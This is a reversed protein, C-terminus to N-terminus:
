INPKASDLAHIVLIPISIDSATKNTYVPVFLDEFFTRKYALMSLVDIEQDEVFQLLVQKVEDSEIVFFDIPEQRFEDEWQEITALIVDSDNTKIYLCKIQAKIKKAIELISFLAKKDKARFRTTFGITYIKKFKVEEPICLMPVHLGLVVAGSNSGAFFADWATAGSTGMIIFDIEDEVVLKNINDILDGEMLRHTMTIHEGNHEEMIKRLKPIEEVFWDFQSLELSDYVQTFNEPFFFSDNIPPVAYSHLVILEGEVIKAFEVAHVFANTAVDSFDTPFLIRKM